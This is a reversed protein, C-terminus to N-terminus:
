LIFIVLGAYLAICIFLIAIVITWDVNHIFQNFTQQKKGAAKDEQYQQFSNELIFIINFFTFANIVLSPVNDFKNIVYFCVGFVILYSFLHRSILRGIIKKLAIM